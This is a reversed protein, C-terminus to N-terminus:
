KPKALPSNCNIFNVDLDQYHETDHVYVRLRAPGPLVGVVRFAAGSGVLGKVGTAPGLSASGASDKRDIVLRAFQHSNHGTMKQGCDNYWYAKLKFPKHLCINYDGGRTVTEELSLLITKPEMMSASAAFFSIWFKARDVPSLADFLGGSIWGAATGASEIGAATVGFMGGVGGVLKGVVGGALGNFVLSTYLKVGFSELRARCAPSLDDIDKPLSGPFNKNRLVLAQPKNFALEKEMRKWDTYADFAGPWDIGFMIQPSMQIFPTVLAYLRFEPAGPSVEVEVRFSSEMPKWIGSIWKLGSAKTDGFGGNMVAALMQEWERAQDITEEILSTNATGALDVLTKDQLLALLQDPTKGSLQMETRLAKLNDALEQPFAMNETGMSFLLAQRINGNVVQIAPMAPNSKSYVNIKIKSFDLNKGTYEPFISFSEAMENPSSLNIDFSIKQAKQSPSYDVVGLAMASSLTVSASKLTEQSTSANKIMQSKSYAREACTKPEDTSDGKLRLCAKVYVHQISKYSPITTVSPIAITGSKLAAIKFDFSNENSQQKWRSGDFSYTELNMNEKLVKLFISGEVAEDQWGLAEVNLNFNAEEWANIKLFAQLNEGEFKYYAKQAGGWLVGLTVLLVTLAILATKFVSLNIKKM